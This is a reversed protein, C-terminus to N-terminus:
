LIYLIFPYRVSFVCAGVADAGGDGAAVGGGHEVGGREGVGVAGNSHLDDVVGVLILSHGQLVRPQRGASIHASPQRVIIIIQRHAM